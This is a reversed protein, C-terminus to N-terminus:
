FTVYCQLGISSSKLPNVSSRNNIIAPQIRLSLDKSIDFESLSADVYADIVSLAYVGILIFMSLDRYRRYFDKRRRFLDQYRETNEPTITNGLHLFDNYSQTNPDDDMIDIYAQSYDHYMQNNWRIAYLCGLFGGYVIPLKWYKRNYIQGAGPIVIALWMARKASPRWTSWDRKEKRTKKAMSDEIITRSLNASDVASMIKAVSDEVAEYPMKGTVSISDKAKDLALTDTSMGRCPSFVTLALCIVLMRTGIHKSLRNTISM